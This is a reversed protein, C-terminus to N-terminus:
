PVVASLLDNAQVRQLQSNVQVLMPTVRTDVNITGAEQGGYLQATLPSLRIIGHDLVVSAHTKTLVLQDHRIEGATIEGNGTMKALISDTAPSAGGSRTRTQAEARPVLTWASSRTPQPANSPVSGLAQQLETVNIKDANLTFQVDPSAFNRLTMAGTANTGALSAALNQVQASNQRLQLSASHIVLPQRLTATQFTANQVQGTGNFALESANKMPGSAHLDLTVAGNGSLGQVAEPSWSRAMSLLDAVQANNTRVTADIWPMPTSYNNLTFQVGVNTNAATASFNNSQIQQPSLALDIAQVKVPTPIEKGSIALDRVSVTGNLVPLSVPGQASVDAFARGQVNTDAGFAMGAVAALRAAEALAVNQANLKIDVQAPTARTNVNGTIVLPTSGLHLNGKQIHVSGSNLDDSVNYDATIPYGIAAGRVQGDQFELTGASSLAKDQSSASAEGSVTGEIQALAQTNLFKQVGAISVQSLKLRGQFPTDALDSRNLPGATGTLAVTQEGKGPLHVTLALDFAKDPVFNKLSVNIHDYTARPQHNQDDTLAIQGDTIRLNDLAFPVGAQPQQIQGASPAPKPQKAPGAGLSAFNWAGQANRILEVHPQQLEIGSLEVERHLLPWLKVAISMEQARAFTGSGFQPDEGLVASDVLLRPPLLKLHIQGLRVPRHLRQQLDEQVRSRYRDVNIFMPAVLLGVVALVVIAIVALILKRM